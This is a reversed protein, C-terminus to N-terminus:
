GLRERLRRALDLFAKGAPSDPAQEVIPTGLDGGLVIRPDIPVEGLLPVGLREAEKRGGGARFIETGEGCHPCVFRSMNEVIGLVPIKVKEFMAFGKAADILAVEQPTTVIIAGTLALKQSLTIQIDGTGPPLDLVLFETGSWDVDAMLQDLAKGVMPGRWIVPTDRPVLYGISITRVDFRSLPVLKENRILPQENEMGMMLPISPGYIDCDLLGVKVGQKALAIALNVAVTSKGVGGKGSAIAIKVPIDPLLGTPAPPAAPSPGPAAARVRMRIEPKIGRRSLAERAAAEIREAAEPLHTSMEIVVVVRGNEERIDKVYGLAVIDASLGPFRVEKLGAVVSQVLDQSM